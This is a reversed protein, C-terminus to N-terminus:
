YTTSSELGNIFAFGLVLLIVGLVITVGNLIAAWKGLEEGKVHGVIGLVVGLPASILSPVGCFALGLFTCAVCAFSIISWIPTQSPQQYPPPYPVGYPQQPYGPQQYQQGQAPYSPPPAPPPFGPYSTPNVPQAVPPTYAGPAPQEPQWVQTPDAQSPQWVQTPDAQPADQPQQSKWLDIPQQPDQPTSM